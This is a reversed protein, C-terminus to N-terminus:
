IQLIIVIIIIIRIKRNSNSSCFGDKPVEGIWVNIKKPSFFSYHNDRLAATVLKSEHSACHWELRYFFLFRNFFISKISMLDVVNNFYGTRLGPGWRWHWRSGSGWVCLKIDGCGSAGPGCACQLNQLWVRCMILLCWNGCKYNKVLWILDKAEMTCCCRKLLWWLRDVQYYKPGSVTSGCYSQIHGRWGAHDHRDKGCM